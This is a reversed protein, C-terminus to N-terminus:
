NTCALPTSATQICLSAVRHLPFEGLQWSPVTGAAAGVTLNVPSAGLIKIWSPPRHRRAGLNSASAQAANM